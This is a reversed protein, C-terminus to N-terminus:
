FNYNHRLRIMCGLPHARGLPEHPGRPEMQGLEAEIFEKFDPFWCLIGRFVKEAAALELVVLDWRCAKEPVRDSPAVIVCPNKMM